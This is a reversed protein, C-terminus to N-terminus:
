GWGTDFKETTFTGGGTGTDQGQGSDTGTSIPAPHHHHGEYAANAPGPIGAFVGTALIVAVAWRALHKMKSM